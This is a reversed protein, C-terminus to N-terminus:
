GLYNSGIYQWNRGQKGEDDLVDPNESPPTGPTAPIPPIGPTGPTGGSGGSTYGVLSGLMNKISSPKPEAYTMTAKSANYTSVIMGGFVPSMNSNTGESIYYEGNPAYIYGCFTNNQRNADIARDARSNSVLMIRNQYEDKPISTGSQMMGSLNNTEQNNIYNVQNETGVVEKQAAVYRTTGITDYNNPNYPTYQYDSFEDPSIANGNEDVPNGKDDTRYNAMEFVVNGDGTVAVDTWGSGSNYNDGRWSFSPKGDDSTNNPALVVTMADSGTSPGGEVEYRINANSDVPSGNGFMGAADIDIFVGESIYPISVTVDDGHGPGKSITVTYTNGSSDTVEVTTEYGTIKGDNDKIEQLESFDIKVKNDYAAQTGTYSAYDTRIGTKTAIADTVSMTSSTTEFTDSADNAVRNTVTVNTNAPNYTGINNSGTSASGSTVNNTQGGATIRASNYGDPVVVNGNIDLTGSVSWGNNIVNYDNRTINQNNNYQNAYSIPDRHADSGEGMMGEPMVYYVNGSVHLNGTINVQGMIYIDGEVYIDGATVNANCALVLDRGVYLNNQNGLNLNNANNNGLVLDKGIYWDNDDSDAIGSCEFKNLFVSGSATIGGKFRNPRGDNFFTYDNEFFADDTIEDANIMVNRAAPKYGEAGIDQGTATFFTSFNVNTNGPTGPQGPQGPQEPNGNSGTSKWVKVTTIYDEVSVSNGNYFATTTFVYTYKYYHYIIPNGNEDTGPQTGMFCETKNQLPDKLLEIKVVIGDVAGNIVSTGSNALEDIIQENTATSNTINSSHAMISTGPTNLNKVAEKLPAYNNAGTANIAADNIVAESVMDAVSIASMYLQSYNYNSVVTNHAGRATYYATSAMAILLTMIAIVVFLVAGKKQKLKGIRKIM